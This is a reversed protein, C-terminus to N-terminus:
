INIFGYYENHYSECYGGQLLEVLRVKFNEYNVKKVTVDFNVLEAYDINYVLDSMSSLEYDVLDKKNYDVSFKINVYDYLETFEANELTELVVGSYARALGGTGLKIGGFYRTVVIAINIINKGQIVSFIPKASTGSPEGDDSYKIIEYNEGVTYVPVNHTAKYHTKKIKQVFEKAEDETDVPKMYCIFKSKKIVIEHELETLIKKM